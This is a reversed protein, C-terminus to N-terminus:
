LRKEGYIVPLSAMMVIADNADNPLLLVVHGDEVDWTNIKSVISEQLGPYPEAANAIMGDNDCAYFFM